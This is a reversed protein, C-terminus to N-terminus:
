PTRSGKLWMSSYSKFIQSFLFVKDCWITIMHSIHIHSWHGSVSWTVLTVIYMYDTYLCCYRSLYSIYVHNINQSHVWEYLHFINVDYASESICYMSLYNEDHAWKYICYMSFYESLPGVPLLLVYIINEGHAWEYIYYTRVHTWGYIYHMSLYSFQPGVWLYLVYIIFIRIM